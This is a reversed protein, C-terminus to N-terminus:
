RGAGIERYREFLARQRTDRPMERGDIYVTEAWNTLEFPDGSWVVLDGPMGPSLTGYLAEVGFARAPQSTVAELAAEHPMGYSVAIGAIQRLNRVNYTDFSSLIVDVGSAHLRAANEYTAGLSEFTPLNVSANVIVPVSAARLEEAVMWGEQAGAIIMRLEFERMIRLAALIDSARNARVVLPLEGRVVPLLAELDLRSLAYDRRRGGDFAERNRAYDRTDTLAERLLLTATGRAGGTVSAGAEGLSAYLAVPSRDLMDMTSEGGLNAFVGQGQILASSGQPAIVVRTIGEVRTVPINTAFPNIGDVVSFGATIRDNSSAADVTNQELGIEVLGLGTYADFLGPTVVKGTADITRAGPPITVAPGVAAIRGDVMLVTGSEIVTGNGIHVEAGTVAITQSSAPMATATVAASVGFLRVFFPNKM